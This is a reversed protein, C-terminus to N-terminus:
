APEVSVERYEHRGVPADKFCGEYTQGPLEAHAVTAVFAGGPTDLVSRWTADGTRRLEVLRWGAIADDGLARRVFVEAAQAPQPWGSRGRFHALPIVGDRVAAMVSGANDRDVRGFYRGFPLAVLNGAFRHGGVHSTEWIAPDAGLDM